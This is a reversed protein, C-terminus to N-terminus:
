NMNLVLKKKFQEGLANIKANPSTECVKLFQEELIDYKEKYAGAIAICENKTNNLENVKKAIEDRYAKNKNKEEELEKQVKEKYTKSFPLLQLIKYGFYLFGVISVGTIGIPTSLWEFVQSTFAKTETPVVLYFVLYTIIGVIILCKIILSLIEKAKKM